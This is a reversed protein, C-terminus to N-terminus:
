SLRRTPSSLRVAGDHTFWGDAAAPSGRQVPPASPRPQATRYASRVTATIEREGLGVQSAAAALVDLADPAPVGNEALRCAAWFLGRNREGEARGAVWAALRSADASQEVERGWTRRPTPRPDLFERLQDADLVSPVGANIRRVRYGASRRATSVTSPPVVIYGGDGRFDIGARAAQWSRQDRDPTAPYYAHMGASPTSVLFAWGSVLGARHAHDFARYGDVPGHVDVDVVVLGSAAGTPVALNAEPHERWWATIQELDTTADHFGHTTLPRKGGPLCPFVPVGAAALERAVASVPWPSAARRLVRAVAEVAPTM